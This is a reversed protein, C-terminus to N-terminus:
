SSKTRKKYILIASVAAACGLLVIVARLIDVVYPLKGEIKAQGYKGQNLYKEFRDWMDGKVHRLKLTKTNYTTVEFIDIYDVEDYTTFLYVKGEVPRFDGMTNPNLYTQKTGEKVNGKIIAVPSLEIDPTQKDPHYSLVEGFFIQADEGHLLSEPIDGALATYTCSLLVVFVLFLVFKRM